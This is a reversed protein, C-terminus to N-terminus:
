WEKRINNFLFIGQSKDLSIIDGTSIAEVTTKM